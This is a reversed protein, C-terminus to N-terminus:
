RQFFVLQRKGNAKAGFMATEACRFLDESSRSDTPFTAAGYSATIAFVDGRINVQTSFINAIGNVVNIVDEANYSEGLIFGFEDGGIKAAFIKDGCYEQLMKSYRILLEDGINHGFNDNIGKFDDIDCYIVTSTKNKGIREDLEDIFSQRNPMETLRDYYALFKLSEDKEEIIRAQEIAQQYSETLEANMKDTRSVYFYIIFCILISIMSVVIGPLSGRNGRMIYMAVLVFCGNFANLISAVIFGKKKALLVLGISIVVMVQGIVGSFGATKSASGSGAGAPAGGHEESQSVSTTPAGQGESAGAPRGSGMGQLKGNIFFLAMYLVIGVIVILWSNDKKKKLDM